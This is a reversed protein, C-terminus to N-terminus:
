TLPWHNYTVVTGILNLAIGLAALPVTCRTLVRNPKWLLIGLFIWPLIDTLYRNGFHWGGLTRHCAIFLAYLVSLVPILWYLAESNEKRRPFAAAWVAAAAPFIPNVLYFATGNLQPWNLKNSGPAPLPFRLMAKLNDELYTLSFQGYEARQFEPLWTHGFELPSGFRAANLAMYGAAILAPAIAWHWKMATLRWFGREPFTEHLARVLLILLVPLCIACMPRCGVACAWWALAWGGRGARAHRIAALCLAICLSQAIFWVFGNMVLWLWGNGFLLFVLWYLRQARQMGMDEALRAAEWLALLAVALAIFGDPTNEGFVAAFPLMLVSPFPPFSCYYRGGYIALELWQLEEGRELDLRGHLWNVAQLTYTNYWNRQWLWQGTFSAVAFMCAALVGSLMLFDQNRSLWGRITRKM